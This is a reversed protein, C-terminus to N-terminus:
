IQLNLKLKYFRHLLILISLKSLVKSLYLFSVILLNLILNKAVRLPNYINFSLNTTRRKIQVSICGNKLLIILLLFIILFRSLWNIVLLYYLYWLIILNLIILFSYRCDFTINLQKKFLNIIKSFFFENWGFNM